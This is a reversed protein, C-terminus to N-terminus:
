RTGAGKKPERSINQISDLYRQKEPTLEPKPLIYKGTEESGVRQGNYPVPPRLKKEVDSAHRSKATDRATDQVLKVAGLTDGQLITPAEFSDNGNNSRIPGSQCGFLSAVFLILNILKCSSFNM